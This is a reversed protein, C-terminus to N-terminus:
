KFNCKGDGITSLSKDKDLVAARAVIQATDRATSGLWGHRLTDIVTKSLDSYAEKHFIKTTIYKKLEEVEDLMYSLDNNGNNVSSPINHQTSFGDRTTTVKLKLRKYDVVDKVIDERSISLSNMESPMQLLSLSELENIADELPRGSVQSTRTVSQTNEVKKTLEHDATVNSFKDKQKSASDDLLTGFKSSNYFENAVERNSKVADNDRKNNQPKEGDHNCLGTVPINVQRQKEENNETLKNSDVTDKISDM